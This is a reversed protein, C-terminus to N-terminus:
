KWCRDGKKENNKHEEECNERFVSGKGKAPCCASVNPDSWEGGESGGEEKGEVRWRGGTIIDRM